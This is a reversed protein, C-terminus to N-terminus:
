MTPSNDSAVTSTMQLGQWLIMPLIKWFGPSAPIYMVETALSLSSVVYLEVSQFSWFLLFCFLLQNDVRGKIHIVCVAM